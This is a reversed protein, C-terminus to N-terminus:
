GEPSVPPLKGGLLMAALLPAWVEGRQENSEEFVIGGSERRYPHAISVVEGDDTMLAGVIQEIAEPSESLDAPYDARTKGPPMRVGWTDGVFAVWRADQAHRNGLAFMAIRREQATGPLDPMFLVELADRDDGAAPPRSVYACAILDGNAELMDCAAATLNRLRALSEERDV